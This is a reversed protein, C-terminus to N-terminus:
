RTTCHASNAASIAEHHLPRFQRSIARVASPPLARCLRALRWLQTRPQQKNLVTASAGAPGRWQVLTSVAEGRSFLAVCRVPVAGGSPILHLVQYVSLRFMGGASANSIDRIVSIYTHWQPLRTRFHGPHKCFYRAMITGLIDAHHVGRSGIEVPCAPRTLRGIVVCSLVINNGGHRDGCSLRLHLGGRWQQCRGTGARASDWRQLFVHCARQCGASLRRQGQRPRVFRPMAVRRRGKQPPPITQNQNTKVHKNFMEVSCHM